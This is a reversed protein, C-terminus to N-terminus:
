NQCVFIVNIQSFWWSGQMSNQTVTPVVESSNVTAVKNQCRTLFSKIWDREIKIQASNKESGNM